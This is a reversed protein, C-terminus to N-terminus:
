FKAGNTYLSPRFGTEDQWAILRDVVDEAWQTDGIFNDCALLVQTVGLRALHDM